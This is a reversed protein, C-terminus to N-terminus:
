PTGHARELNERAAALQPNIRLATQFEAIAAAMHGQAALASGLNSHAVADGPQLQSLERFLRVADALKGADASSEGLVRLVASLRERSSHNESNLRLVLRYSEAAEELEGKAVLANALNYRADTYDSRMQLASRYLAIADDLNGRSEFISALSNLTAYDGPNSALAARYHVEADALNGQSQLVAGLNFNASFDNPDKELRRAMLAAQLILRGDQPGRPLVQLWLHSMEDSARNGARVRKPPYNPNAVNESSNDYSYRMMIVTGKPLFVPESYRYVAQWNLDWHKIWILWKKTGNPLAAYARLDQGLYHAHPYVGLVDVDLPLRFEDTVTFDRDGPPIDLAPDNELQILMPHKSPAQQTFYLGVMPQILEPKGSPQLHMNLILDTGKDVTWALGKPEVSPVTGPKWFLFHSDPDFVDSEVELSMGDYGPEGDRGELRRSSGTHDVLINAHHVVRKNGPRIEFARIYTTGTVPVPIVFNRFVDGGAASLTYPRPMTLVLDPPGLQWGETFHPAPPLFKPDGEPAGQDAWQQIIAIQSDSLRRANAFHGYGPEPLWPPMYRSRTVDAIQRARIKADHYSLLSFPAAEGPRHCPACQSFVIPAVDQNFTIPREACAAGLPLVCGLVVERGRM